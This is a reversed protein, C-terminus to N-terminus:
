KGGRTGGGKAFDAQILNGRRSIVSMRRRVHDLDFHAYYEETIKITSHGLIKSLDWLSGGNMLYHAAVTHRLGHPGIDRVNAKQCAKPLVFQRVYNPLLPAGDSRTFLQGRDLLPYLVETVEPALGLHRSKRGKTTLLIKKKTENYQRDVTLLDITPDIQDGHLAVAEGVRMGTFLVTLLFPYYHNDRNSSLFRDSEEFTWYDIAPREEVMPEICDFPNKSFAGGFFRKRIAVSFLVSLLARIRNCTAPSLPSPAEMMEGRRCIALFREFEEVEVSRMDHGTFFPRIYAEFRQKAVRLTNPARGKATAFSEYAEFMM